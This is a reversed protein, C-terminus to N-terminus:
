RASFTVSGDAGRTAIVPLTAEVNRVFQDLNGARISTTLRLGAVREDGLRIPTATYRQMDSVIEGLPAESYFLRGTRWEGPTMAPASVETFTAGETLNVHHGATLVREPATGGLPLLRRKRLEVRGELVSVDVTDGIWRVDFRTGTVRIEADGAIVTFPRGPDHAVEFFAQGRRLVVQRSRADFRVDMGSQAGLTVRSGDALALARTQATVTAIGAPREGTLAPGLVAVAISAAMAAPLIFRGAGRLAWDKLRVVNSRGHGDAEERWGPLLADLRAAQLYVKRAEDFADRHDPSEALWADRRALASADADELLLWDRALAEIEERPDPRSMADTTM